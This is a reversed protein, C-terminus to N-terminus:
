DGTNAGKDVGSVVEVTGSYEVEVKNGLLGLLKGILEATSRAVARDNSNRCDRYLDIVEKLLGDADIEAKAARKEVAKSIAEAVEAHKLLRQGQSYATKESYGARKAAQTANPDKLYEQAFRKQKENLM